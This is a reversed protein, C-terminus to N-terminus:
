LQRGKALLPSLTNMVVDLMGANAQAVAEAAETMALRAAEDSLLRDVESATDKANDVWSLGGETALDTMVDAFNEVNRGTMVACNLQAPEIPNHGGIPVLSGGVLVIPAVRLFAGMEGLTDALYVQDDSAPLGGKSRSKAIWGARSILDAIEPARQPHRPALILLLDPRSQLLRQHADLCVQEEGEHTSAALWVPRDGIADELRKVDQQDAPPPPAAYKINGAQGLQTIGLDALKAAEQMSAPLVMSFVAMLSQLAGPAMRWRAASRGSMRANLMVAPISRGAIGDLLNPWLESELWIALDPQWHGLFRDVYAMRDLPVYQHFARPPLRSELLQAASVTHTTLLVSLDQETALLRDILSLVSLSEGVSAGHIWVLSGDPRPRGAIGLREGRRAPDEKGRETRRKLLLPVLPGAMTTVGRYLTRIM